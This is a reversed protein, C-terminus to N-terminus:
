VFEGQAREVHCVFAAQAHGLVDRDDAEVVDLVATVTMRGQGGDGRVLLLDRLTGQLAQRVADVAGAVVDRWLFQGHRVPQHPAPRGSGPWDDDSGPTPSREAT